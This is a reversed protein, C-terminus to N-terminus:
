KPALLLDVGREALVSQAFENWDYDGDRCNAEGRAVKWHAAALREDIDRVADALYQHVLADIQNHDM